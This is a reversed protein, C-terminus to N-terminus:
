GHRGEQNFDKRNIHYKGNLDTPPLVYICGAAMQLEHQEKMCSMAVLVSIHLINVMM